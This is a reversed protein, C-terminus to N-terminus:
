EPRSTGRRDTTSPRYPARTGSKQPNAGSGVASNFSMVSNLVVWSVGISSVAGGNSCVGGLGRAGCFTSSVIYVPLNRYQSLVRIAAGGLDPGSRECRNRIFRSNIVKLRGGRVFIAGGGGGEMREGTSNGDAFTLNQVTLQPHDQNQCHSTTWVQAQDCTNMNLIRRRGGGSLTVNGGGDLM